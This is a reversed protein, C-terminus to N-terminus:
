THVLFKFKYIKFEIASTNNSFHNFHVYQMTNNSMQHRNVAIEKTLVVSENINYLEKNPCENSSSYM